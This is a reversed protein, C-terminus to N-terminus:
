ETPIDNITYPEKLRWVEAKAHGCQIRKGTNTFFDTGRLVEVIAVNESWTKIALHGNEIQGLPLLNVTLTAWAEGDTSTVSLSVGGGNAYTGRVIKLEEGLFGFTMEKKDM